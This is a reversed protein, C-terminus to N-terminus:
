FKAQLTVGDPGTIQVAGKVSKPVAMPATGVFQAPEMPELTFRVVKGEIALIANAKFGKSSVPRDGLDSLHVTVTASGDSVLEVHNQGGADVLPGGHPGVRPQHSLAPGAVLATALLAAASSKAIRM